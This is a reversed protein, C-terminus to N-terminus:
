IIVSKHRCGISNIFAESIKKFDMHVIRNSNQVHIENKLQRYAVLHDNTNINRVNRLGM